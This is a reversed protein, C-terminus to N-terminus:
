RVFHLHNIISGDAIADMYEDSMYVLDCSVAYVPKFYTDKWFILGESNVDIEESMEIQPPPMVEEIFAELDDYECNYARILKVKLDEIRNSDLNTNEILAITGNIKFVTQKTM